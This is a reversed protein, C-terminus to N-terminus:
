LGKEVMVCLLNSVERHFEDSEFVKKIMRPIGKHMVLLLDDTLEYKEKYVALLLTSLDVELQKARNLETLTTNYSAFALECKAKLDENEARFNNM